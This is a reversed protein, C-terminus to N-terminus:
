AERWAPFHDRLTLLMHDFVLGVALMTVIYAYVTASEFFREAYMLAAGMGGGGAVMESTFTTILAVPVAVRLAAFIRPYCAPLIVNWMMRRRSSGMSLASWILTPKVAIAADYTAIVVPFLCAFTVLLIKSLSDIGFWLVFVPIFAIKPAPFGLSVLPDLLWYVLKYHAMAIGIFVGAFLALTLGAFTRTLSVLLDAPLSGDITLEGVTAIVTTVAPLFLPPALRLRTAMEWAILVTLISVVPRLHELMWRRAAAAVQVM